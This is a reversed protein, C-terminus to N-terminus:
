DAAEGAKTPSQLSGGGSCFSETGKDGEGQLRALTLLAGEWGPQGLGAELAHLHRSAAASGSPIRRGM